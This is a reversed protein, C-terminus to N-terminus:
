GSTLRVGTYRSAKKLVEARVVSWLLYTKHRYGRCLFGGEIGAESRKASFLKIGRRRMAASVNLHETIIQQEMARLSGMIILDLKLGMRHVTSIDEQLFDLMVPLIIADKVLAREEPTIAPPKSPVM